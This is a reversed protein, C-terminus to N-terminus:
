KKEREALARRMRDRCDSIGMWHQQQSFLQEWFPALLWDFEALWRHAEGLRVMTQDIQQYRQLDEKRILKWGFM